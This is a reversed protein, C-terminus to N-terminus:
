QAANYTRGPAGFWSCSASSDSFVDNSRRFTIAKMQFSARYEATTLWAMADLRTARDSAAVIAYLVTLPVPWTCDMKEVVFMVAEVTEM